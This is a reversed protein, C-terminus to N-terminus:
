WSKREDLAEASQWRVMGRLTAADGLQPDGDIGAAAAAAAAAAVVANCSVVSSAHM